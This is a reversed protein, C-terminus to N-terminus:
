VKGDSKGGQGFGQEMLRERYEKIRNLVTTGPSIIKLFRDTLL